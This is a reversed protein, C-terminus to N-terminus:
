EEAEWHVVEGSVNVDTDAGITFGNSLPTVGDSTIYSLTGATVQKLGAADPMTNNWELKVLGDVNLLRV